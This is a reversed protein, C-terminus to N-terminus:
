IRLGFKYNCSFLFNTSNTKITGDNVVPLSSINYLGLNNRVELSVSIKKRIPVSLGLGLSIGIDFRKNRETIDEIITPNNEWEITYTHKILYGFYPGTNIFYNIKKRLIVRVLIPFTLYDLRDCQDKDLGPPLNYIYATIGIKGGKREYAINSLLSINKTFNYQFLIGVSYAIDFKRFTSDVLNWGRLSIISPGGVVGIEFKNVQGFTEIGLTFIFLGLLISKKKTM